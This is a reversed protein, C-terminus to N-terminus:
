FRAINNPILFIRLSLAYCVCGLIMFLYRKFVDAAFQRKQKSSPLESLEADYENETIKKDNM